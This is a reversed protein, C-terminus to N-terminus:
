VFRMAHATMIRRKRTFDSPRTVAEGTPTAITYSLTAEGKPGGLGQITGGNIVFISSDIRRAFDTARAMDRTFVSATHGYGHESDIAQAVGQQYDDVKIVPLLPMLQEQEVFLSALSTHGFLLPVKDSAKIGLAAALVSANRGVFERRPLHTSKSKVFVKDSLRKIQADKLRLNGASEMQRMFEDFVEAVVFLQKEAICLINNDFSASHTIAEAALSLDATEDIVVPPNGPGAAIVKKNTQMAAKVVLPGGTISLLPIAPHQFMEEASAISPEALTTVLNAPAAVAGLAQNLLQVMRATSRKAAPHGNIVATNGAALMMMANNLVTESPHTSPTIVGIVGFPAQEEVALGNAGSFARTSLEEVGPTYNAALEHKLLKHEYRGMGTEEHVLRSLEQKNDLAVQRMAAIYNSRAQPSTGRYAAFAETAAAVAEAITDFVGDGRPTPSALAPAPAVGTLAERPLRAVINRVIDRIGQESVNM